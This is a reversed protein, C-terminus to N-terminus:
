HRRVGVADASSPPPLLRAAHAELEVRHRRDGHDAAGGHRM